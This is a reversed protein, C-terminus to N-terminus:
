FRDSLPPEANLTAVGFTAPCSCDIRDSASQSGAEPVDVAVVRRKGEFLIAEKEYRFHLVDGNLRHVEVCTVRTQEFFGPAVRAFFHSGPEIGGEGLLFAYTCSTQLSHFLPQVLVLNM